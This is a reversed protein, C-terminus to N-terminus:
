CAKPIAAKSISSMLCSDVSSLRESSEQQSAALLVLLLHQKSGRYHVLPVIVGILIGQDGDMLLNTLQLAFSYDDLSM